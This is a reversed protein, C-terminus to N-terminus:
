CTTLEYDISDLLVGTYDSTGDIIGGEVRVEELYGWNADFTWNRMFFGVQNDLKPYTLQQRVTKVGYEKAGIGVVTLTCENQPYGSSCAYSLQKLRFTQNPSSRKIIRPIRADYSIITTNGSSPKIFGTYEDLFWNSYTLGNYPTPPYAPEPSATNYPIDDFTATFLQLTPACASYTTTQTPTTSTPTITPTVTTTPPYFTPCNTNTVTITKTIKWATKTVTKTTTTIPFSWDWPHAAVLPLALLLIIIIQM